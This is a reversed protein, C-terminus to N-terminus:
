KEEPTKVLCHKRSYDILEQAVEGWTWVKPKYSSRNSRHSNMFGELREAPGMSATTRQLNIGTPKLSEPLGRILPIMIEPNVPLMMPSECRPNLRREHIMQLCAAKHVSELLQDATGTIALTNGRHLPNLEGAWYAAHQTLSWPACNDGTTLFVGHSWYGSAEKESLQIQDDGTLSVYWVYETESEKPLCGYDRKLKALETASYLTEKTTIHPDNDDENIYAYETKILPRV